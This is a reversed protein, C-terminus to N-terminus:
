QEVTVTLQREVYNAGPVAPGCLAANCATATIQDITLTDGLENATVRTCDVDVTFDALPTGAPFSLAGNLACADDRLSRYVGWEIGARAAQYARAGLVDIASSSASSGAVSVLFAGLAALVVMLFIATPLAFGSPTRPPEPCMASM